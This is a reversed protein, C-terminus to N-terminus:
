RPAKAAHPVGLANASVCAACTIPQVDQPALEPHRTVYLWGDAHIEGVIRLGCITCRGRVIPRRRERKATM